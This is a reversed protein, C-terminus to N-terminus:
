EHGASTVGTLASNLWDATVPPIALDHVVTLHGLLTASLHRRAPHTLITHALAGDNTVAAARALEALVASRAPDDVLQVAALQVDIAFLGTPPTGPEVHDFGALKDADPHTSAGTQRRIMLQLLEAVTEQWPQAHVTDALLGTATTHDGRLTHAIVAIQRGDLLTAGIGRHRDAHAAADDWRGARALARVGEALTVTWIWRRTEARDDDTAIADRLDILQGDIEAVGGDHVASLLSELTEIATDHHDARIQLRALNVVPELARRAEIVTWPQQQSYRHHHRWCLARALDHHGCNSAILAAKNHAAAIRAAADPNDPPTRALDAVEALQQTLPPLAPRHRPVLPFRRAVQEVLESVGTTPTTPPTM